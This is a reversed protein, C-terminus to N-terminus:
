ELENLHLKKIVIKVEEIDITHKFSHWKVSKYDDSSITNEAFDIHINNLKEEITEGGTQLPILNAFVGKEYSQLLCRIRNIELIIKGNGQTAEVNCRQDKTGDLLIYEPKVPCWYSDFDLFVCGGWLEPKCFGMITYGPFDCFCYNRFTCTQGAKLNYPSDPLVDFLNQSIEINNDKVWKYFEERYSKM